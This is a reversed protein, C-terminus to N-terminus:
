VVSVPQSCAPFTELILFNQQAIQVYLLWIVRQLFWFMKWDKQFFQLINSYVSSEQIYFHIIDTTHLEVTFSTREM